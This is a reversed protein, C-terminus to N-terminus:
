IDALSDIGVINSLKKGTTTYPIKTSVYGRIGGYQSKNIGQPTAIVSMGDRIQNASRDDTFGVIWSPLSYSPQSSFFLVPQNVDSYQENGKSLNSVYGVADSFVYMNTITAICFFHTRYGGFEHIHLFTHTSMSKFIVLVVSELDHTM